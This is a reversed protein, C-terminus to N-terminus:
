IGCRDHPAHHARRVRVCGAGSGPLPRGDAVGRSVPGGEAPEACRAREMELGVGIEGGGM